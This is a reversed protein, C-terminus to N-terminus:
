APINSKRVSEPIASNFEKLAADIEASFDATIKKFLARFFERKARSYEKMDAYGKPGRDFFRNANSKAAGIAGLVRTVARAVAERDIGEINYYADMMGNCVSAGVADVYKKYERKNVM